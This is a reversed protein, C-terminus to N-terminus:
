GGGPRLDSPGTPSSRPSTRCHRALGPSTTTTPFISGTQLPSLSAAEPGPSAVFARSPRSSRKARLWTGIPLAHTRLVAGVTRPPEGEPYRSALRPPARSRPSRKPGVGLPSSTSRTRATPPSGRSSTALTPSPTSVRCRAPLWDAIRVKRLLTTEPCQRM